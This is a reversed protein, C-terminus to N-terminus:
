PWFIIARRIWRVINGAITDHHLELISCTVNMKEMVEFLPTLRRHLLREKPDMYRKALYTRLEIVLKPKLLTVFFLTVDTM